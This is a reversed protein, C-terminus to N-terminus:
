KKSTIANIVVKSKAINPYRDMITRVLLQANDIDSLEMFLEMFYKDNVVSVLLKAPNVKKNSIISLYSGMLLITQDIERDTIDSLPTSKALKTDHM